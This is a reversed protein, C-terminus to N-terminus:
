SSCMFVTGSVLWCLWDFGSSRFFRAWFAGLGVLKRSVNYLARLFSGRASVWRGLRLQDSGPLVECGRFTLSGIGVESVLLVGCRGRNEKSLTAVGVEIFIASLIGVSSM